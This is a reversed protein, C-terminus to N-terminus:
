DYYWEHIIWFLIILNHVINNKKRIKIIYLILLLNLQMVIPVTEGHTYNCNDFHHFKDQNCSMASVVRVWGRPQINEVLRRMSTKDFHSTILSVKSQWITKKSLYWRIRLFLLSFLSFKFSVSGSAYLSHSKLSSFFLISTHIELKKLYIM